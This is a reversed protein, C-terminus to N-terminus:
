KKRYRRISGKKSCDRFLGPIFEGRRIRHCEDPRLPKKTTYLHRGRHYVTQTKTGRMGRIRVHRIRRTPGHTQVSRHTYPAKSHSGGNGWLLTPFQPAAVNGNPPPNAGVILQPPHLAGVPAFLSQGAAPLPSHPHQAPQQAPEPAPQQEQTEGTNPSLNAATVAAGTPTIVNGNQQFTVVQPVPTNPSNQHITGASSMTLPTHFSSNTTNGVSSGNQSDTDGFM